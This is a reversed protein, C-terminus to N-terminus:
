CLSSVHREDVRDKWPADPKKPDVSFFVEAERYDEYILPLLLSRASVVPTDYYNAVGLHQFDLDTVLTRSRTRPM